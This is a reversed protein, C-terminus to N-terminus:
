SFFRSSWSAHGWCWHMQIKLFFYALGLFVMLTPWMVMVASGISYSGIDMFVENKRWIINLV